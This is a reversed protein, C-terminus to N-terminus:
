HAKLGRTWCHTTCAVSHSVSLSQGPILPSLSYTKSSTRRPYCCMSGGVESVFSLEAIFMRMFSQFATSSPFLGETLLSTHGFAVGCKWDPWLVHVSGESLSNFLSSISLDLYSDLSDPPQLWSRCTYKWTPPTPMQTDCQKLLGETPEPRRLVVQLVLIFPQDPMVRRRIMNFYMNREFGCLKKQEGRWCRRYNCNM